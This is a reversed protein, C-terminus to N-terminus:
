WDWGTDDVKKSKDVSDQERTNEYKPCWYSHAWPQEDAQKEGVTKELGCECRKGAQRKFEDDVWEFLSLQDKNYTAPHCGKPLNIICDTDADSGDVIITQKKNM